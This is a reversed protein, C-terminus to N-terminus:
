EFFLGLEEFRFGILNNEEIANKLKESCIAKNENKYGNPLM